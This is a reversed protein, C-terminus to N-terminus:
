KLRGVVRYNFEVYNKQPWFGSNEKVIFGNESTGAVYLGKSPGLPTLFVQYDSTEDAFEKPLEIYVERGDLLAAGFVEAVDEYTKITPAVEIESALGSSNLGGGWWGTDIFAIIKVVGEGNYDEMAYGLIKGPETAKMAVGPKGSSTLPDGIKITGNEATVKTPVRGSLTLLEGEPEENIPGNGLVLGPDTSIVGAIMASGASDSKKIHEKAAGDFVVVDGPALEDDSLTYEALDWANSLFSGDAAINGNPNMSMKDTGYNWILLSDTSRFYVNWSSNGYYIRSAAYLNQGVWVNGGNFYGAYGAYGLRAYAGTDGEYFYGATNDSRGYVGYSTGDAYVGYATGYARVGYGGNGIYAYNGTSNQDRFFGGATNGEAYIGYDGYAAWAYSTGGTDNFQGGTIPGQARIGYDASDTYGGTAIGGSIKLNGNMVNTAGLFLRNAYSGDQLWQVFSAEDQVRLARVQLDGTMTDGNINVYRSDFGTFSTDVYLQRPGVTIGLGGGAQIDVAVSPQPGGSNTVTIGDGGLVDTVDGTGGGISDIGCTVSGDSAIVRMYQGVPCTGTVRRQLYNTDASVTVDGSAGGGTLGTGANVATIDGGGGAGTDDTECSVSGDANIVRISSGVACTGTVRRQLYGTDANITVDGSAGGGTLGTGANVATIDGTGGAGSPWSSICDGNLCIEGGGTTGVIWQKDTASCTGTGICGRQANIYGQVAIFNSTGNISLPGSFTSYSGSGAQFGSDTNVYGDASVDGAFNPSDVVNLTVDGSSGGGSLNTGANVATIDGGASVPWSTICDGSLCYEPSSIKGIAEIDDTSGLLFGTAAGDWNGFWIASDGAADARIAKGNAMYFDNGIRANGSINYEASQSAGGVGLNYIVGPTNDGPPAATPGVWAFILRDAILIGVIVIVLALVFIIMKKSFFEKLNM